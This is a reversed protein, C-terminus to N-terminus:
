RGRYGVGWTVSVDLNRLLKMLYIALCTCFFIFKLIKIVELDLELYWRTPQRNRVSRLTPAEESSSEEPLCHPDPM